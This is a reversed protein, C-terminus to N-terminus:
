VNIVFDDMLDRRAEGGSHWLDRVIRKPDVEAVVKKWGVRELTHTHAIMLGRLWGISGVSWGGALGIVCKCAIKSTKGRRTRALLQQTLKRKSM